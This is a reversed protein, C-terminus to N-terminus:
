QDVDPVFSKFAVPSIAVKVYYHLIHYRIKTVSKSLAQFLNSLYLMFLYVTRTLKLEILM